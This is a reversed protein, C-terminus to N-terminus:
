RGRGHIPGGSPEVGCAAPAMRSAFRRLGRRLARSSDAAYRAADAQASPHLRCRVHTAASARPHSFGRAPQASHPRRIADMAAAAALESRKPRACPAHQREGAQAAVAAHASGAHLTGHGMAAPVHGLLAATHPATAFFGGAHDLLEPELRGLVCAASRATGGLQRPRSRSWLTSRSRARARADGDAPRM